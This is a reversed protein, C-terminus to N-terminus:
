QTRTLVFVVCRSEAKSMDKPRLFYHFNRYSETRFTTNLLYVRQDAPDKQLSADPYPAPYSSYNYVKAEVQYASARSFPDLVVIKIQKGSVNSVESTIGTNASAGRKATFAMEQEVTWGEAKALDNISIRWNDLDQELSKVRAVQTLLGRTPDGYVDMGSVLVGQAYTGTGILENRDLDRLSHSGVAQNNEFRGEVAYTADLNTAKSVVMGQFGKELSYYGAQSLGDDHMWIVDKRSAESLLGHEWISTMRRAGKVDILNGKGDPNFQDDVFGEYRYNNNYEIEAFLGASGGFYAQSRRQVRMLTGDMYEYSSWRDTEHLPNFQLDIPGKYHYSMPFNLSVAEVPLGRRFNVKGYISLGGDVQVQGHFYGGDVTGKYSLNGHRADKFRYTGHTPHGQYFSGEYRSGDEWQIVGTGWQCDGSQCAGSRVDLYVFYPENRYQAYHRMSQIDEFYNADFSFGVSQTEQWRQSGAAIEIRDLRKDTYHFYVPLGDPSTYKYHYDSRDNTAPTWHMKSLCRNVRREKNRIKFEYDLRGRLVISQVRGERINLLAERQPDEWATDRLM